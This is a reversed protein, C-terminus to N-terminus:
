DRKRWASVFRFPAAVLAIVSGIIAVVLVFRVLLSAPFGTDFEFPFVRFVRVAAVLNVAATIGDAAPGMPPPSWVFRVLYVVLATVLSVRVAPLVRDWDETVFSFWDPLREAVWLLIANVAAGVLFGARSWARDPDASGPRFRADFSPRTAM